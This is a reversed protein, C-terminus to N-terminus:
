TAGRAKAIAGRATDRVGQVSSPFIGHEVCAELAKLLEPAASVLCAQDETNCDIWNCFNSLKGVTGDTWVVCAETGRGRQWTANSV